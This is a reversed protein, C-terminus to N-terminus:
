RGTAQMKVYAVCVDYAALPLLLQHLSSEVGEVGLRHDIIAVAASYRGRTVGSSVHVEADIFHHAVFRYKKKKKKTKKEVSNHVM